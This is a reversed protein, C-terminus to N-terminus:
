SKFEKLPLILQLPVALIATEKEERTHSNSKDRSNDHQFGRSIGKFKHSFNQAPCFFIYAANFRYARPGWFLRSPELERFDLNEPAMYECFLTRWDQPM